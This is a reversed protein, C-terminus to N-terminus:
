GVTSGRKQPEPFSMLPKPQRRKPLTQDTPQGDDGLESHRDPYAYPSDLIPREFFWDLASM